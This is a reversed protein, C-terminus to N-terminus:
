RNIYVTNQNIISPIQYEQYTDVLVHVYQAGTSQATVDVRVHNQAHKNLGGCINLTEITEIYKM